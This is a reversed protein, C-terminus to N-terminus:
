ADSGAEDREDEPTEATTAPPCFRAALDELRGDLVYGKVTKDGIRITRRTLDLTVLAAALWKTSRLGDWGVGRLAELLEGPRLQEGREARIRLLATVLRATKTEEEAADRAAGLDRAVALLTEARGAPAEADAVLALALLPAILEEARDDVGQHALLDRAQDYAGLLDSIHDLCALASLDRLRAATGATERGVRAIPEDRRRRVMLLPLSRSDLTEKLAALGAIIRPAYVEYEITVFREGQKELRPVSGGRRYGVNLISILTVMKDNDGALSEAEDFCQTGSRREAERYLFAETPAATPPSANFCVDSLLEMLRTKGCAKEASRIRVYPYSPFARYCWTGLAWAALWAPARRDRFAIHRALYEVIGDLAEAVSGRAGALWRVAVDRTMSVVAGVDTHRLALGSPPADSTFTERESTIIVLKEGAPLGYSLTGDNVDQAPHLRRVTDIRALLELASAQQASDKRKTWAKFWSACETFVRHKLGLRPLAEFTALTAGPASFYDDLGSKSGDPAAPLKLVHVTAGREEIARGLAYVAHLLDATRTWVDSDPVLVTSRECFDIRTFDDLLRGEHLWNWLGGIAVCALGDQAGRLSKKEGEAIVLERAPDALAPAVGPPVYLRPATDPPQYYRQTHGNEGPAPPYLKCRYFEGRSDYPILLASDVLAALRAGIVRPIDSAPVSRLRAARATEPTIGSRELDKLHQPDLSAGDYAASVLLAVHGDRPAPRSM